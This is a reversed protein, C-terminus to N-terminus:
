VDKRNMGREYLNITVSRTTHTAKRPNDTAYAPLLDPQPRFGERRLGSPAPTECSALGDHDRRNARSDRMEM